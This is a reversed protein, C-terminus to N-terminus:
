APSPTQRSAADPTSRARATGSSRRPCRTWALSAATIGYILDPAQKSFVLAGALARSYGLECTVVYGRRTQGYGVPIEIRPEFLDCQLL